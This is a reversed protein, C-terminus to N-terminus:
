PDPPTAPARVLVPLAMAVAEVAMTPSTAVSIAAGMIMMIMLIGMPMARIRKMMLEEARTTGRIRKGCVVLWGLVGGYYKKDWKSHRIYVFIM